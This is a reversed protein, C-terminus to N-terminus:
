NPHLLRSSKPCFKAYFAKEPQNFSNLSPSTQSVSLLPVYLTQEEPEQTSPTSGLAPLPGSGGSGFVIVTDVGSDEQVAPTADETDHVEFAPNALLSCTDIVKFFLPTKTDVKDVEVCFSPVCDTVVSTDVDAPFLYRTQTVCILSM